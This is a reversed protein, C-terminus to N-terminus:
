QTRVIRAAFERSGTWEGECFIRKGEAVEVREVRRHWRDTLSAGPPVRVAIGGVTLTGSARDVAGLMGVIEGGHGLNREVELAHFAGPGTFAGEVEVRNGIRLKELRAPIHALTRVTAHRADIVVGSIELTGRVTDIATIRGKLEDQAM